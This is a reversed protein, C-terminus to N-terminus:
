GISFSEVSTTIALLNTGVVIPFSFSSIATGVLSSSLYKREGEALEAEERDRLMQLSRM